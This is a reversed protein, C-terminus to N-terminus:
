MLIINDVVKGFVSSLAIGRFNASDSMNTNHGKPIPVITCIGFSDAHVIIAIGLYRFV